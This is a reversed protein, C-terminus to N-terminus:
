ACWGVMRAVRAAAGSCTGDTSGRLVCWGRWEAANVVRAARCCADGAGGREWMMRAAGSCAGCAGGQKM